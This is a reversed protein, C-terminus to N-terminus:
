VTFDNGSAHYFFEQQKFSSQLFSEKKPFFVGGNKISCGNCMLNLSAKKVTSTPYWIMVLMYPFSFHSDCAARVRVPDLKQAAKAPEGGTNMKDNGHM